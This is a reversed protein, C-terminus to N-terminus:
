WNMLRATATMPKATLAVSKSCRLIALTPSILSLQEAEKEPTVSFVIPASAQNDPQQQHNWVPIFGLFGQNERQEQHDWHGQLVQHGKLERCGM